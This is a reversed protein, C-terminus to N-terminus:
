FALNERVMRVDVAMTSTVAINMTQAAGTGSVTVVVSLGTIAAGMKVIGYKAYDADNADAGAHGDHTAWIVMTEKNARDAGSNGQVHVKWMVAAVNDVLVQDIITQNTVNTASSNASGSQLEADLASLNQYITNSTSIYNTSTMQADAGIAADLKDINANSSNAAVVPNNARTEPTVDVGIATDLSDVMQYVVQSVSVAGTTRALPTLNSDAGIQADLLDINKYVSFALDLQASTRSAPTLDSDAGVVTDLAEFNGYVSTSLSTQGVTRTVPSFAADAGIAADLAELNAEVNGAATIPSQTRTVPTVDAGLYADLADINQYISSAVSVSTGTAARSNATLQSDAGIVTDLADINEYVTNTLSVPGVTRTLPTLHTNDGIVTDLADLNQYITNSLSTSWNRTNPSLQSDSGIADDLKEINSNLPSTGILPFNSRTNPTVDGGLETDLLTIAGAITTAGSIHNGGFSIFTGNTNLGVATEIADVETQLGSLGGVASFKGWDVTDVNLTLTGSNTIIVWGTDGNATGVEVFTFNGASVESSPSGDHDAAREIAGSAGATTVIYIGNQKADAQDKVLLRNGVSLSVGDISTLDVGTFAGSAGTGGTANYTGGVSATTAAFCSAKPDLGAALSDAYDKNVADGGSTPAGLGTVKNGGMAINGTMTGGSLDLRTIMEADLASINANVTGASTAFNTSTVNAGIASDLADLNAYVSNSVSIPGATRAEAGLAADPGIVTDLADLNHYISQGISVLGITRVQATLGSEPGINQDIKEMNKYISNTLDLQYVSRAVPSPFDSDAGIVTDLKDINANVTAGAVIPSKTRTLPTPDAGIEADLLGVAVELNGSVHNTSTYTPSESGAATKGIFSRIFGDEDTLATVDSAEAKKEWNGSGAGATIKSYLAGTSQDMYISSVPADASPAGSGTLINSLDDISIGAPNVRFIETAM